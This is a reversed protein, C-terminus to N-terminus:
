IWYKISRKIQEEDVITLNELCWRLFSAVASRQEANCRYRFNFHNNHEIKSRGFNAIADITYDTVLQDYNDKNRICWLMYAPVYKLYDPTGEIEMLSENQQIAEDSISSENMADPFANQIVQVINM